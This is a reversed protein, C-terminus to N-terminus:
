ELSHAVLNSDYRFGTRRGHDPSRQGQVHLVVLGLRAHGVVSQANRGPVSHAGRGVAVLATLRGKPPLGLERSTLDVTVPINEVSM